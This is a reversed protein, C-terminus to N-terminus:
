KTAADVHIDPSRIDNTQHIDKAPIDAAHIDKSQIDARHISERGIEASRIDASYFDVTNTDPASTKDPVANSGADGALVPLAALALILLAIKM